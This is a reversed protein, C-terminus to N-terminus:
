YFNYRIDLSLARGPRVFGFHGKSGIVRSGIPTEAAFSVVKENTLNQGLLAIEWTDDISKMALRGNYLVYEAQEADPDLTVTTHYGSNYLVDLSAGFIQSGGSLGRIESEYNLAM